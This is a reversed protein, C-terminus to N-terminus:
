IFFIASIIVISAIIAIIGGIKMKRITAIGLSLFIMAQFFYQWQISMKLIDVVNLFVTIISLMSIILFIIEYLKFDRNNM